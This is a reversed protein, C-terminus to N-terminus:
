KYDGILELEEKYLHDYISDLQNLVNELLYCEVKRASNKKFKARLQKDCYIKEILKATEIYDNFKVLFGNENDNILERPGRTDTAIINKECVMGELLCKGLGERRSFLGILDSMNILEKVDDRWGVLIIQNELEYRRIQKKLREESPGTGAFIAKINPYKEKLIHMSKVLQKHNKNKNIEALVLIVFDDEQISFKQRYKCRDFNKICYKEKEIGVGYVKSVKGDKRLNFNKAINFDDNNITILYDTWRAAIKEIPYFIAWNLLSGGKYFHFGHCTYVIKVKKINRLALRTIFSAVPTHVHIIDYQQIQQLKRIRDFALKNIPNLPNRSFPIDFIKCGNDLIEKDIDIDVNTAIDVIYGKNILFKIHPIFFANITRGITTVYLIKKM